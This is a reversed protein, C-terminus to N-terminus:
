GGGPATCALVLLILEAGVKSTMDGADLPPAIEMIDVCGVRADSAAIRLAQMLDWTSLGAALATNLGPAFTQDLVDVDVTVYIGATDRGAIEMAERIIPAMGRARVDWPTFITAGRSRVYDAYSAAYGFGHIGIQAVNLGSITGDELVERLWLGSNNKWGERCDLHADFQILGIPGGAAKCYARLTAATTSHDGGVVILRRCDSLPAAVAAEVRRLTEAADQHDVRVDGCDVVSLHALDVGYEIGYTGNQYLLARVREPGLRAGRRHSVTAGDFPIGVIGADARQGPRWAQVTQCLWTVHPDPLHAPPEPFHPASLLDLHTM